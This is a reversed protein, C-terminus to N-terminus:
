RLHKFLVKIVAARHPIIFLLEQWLTKTCEKSHSAVVSIM